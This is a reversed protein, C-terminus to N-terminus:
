LCDDYVRYRKILHAGGKELSGRSLRNSEAIWSFEVEQADKMRLAARCLETALVVGIGMRHYEPLVNAAILRYKQIKHKRFMLRAFGFPYLRGNIKKIRESYDPLAIAVGVIRGEIEVAIALKPVLLWRLGKAMHAVEAESLLVMGWHQALSKNLVQLYEILDEHLRSRDLSRVRINYRQIIQDTLPGLKPILMSRDGQYALLDQTKQFGCGAILEDYYPPNYPMMVSPPLEFGEVLVGASYYLGPNVPGRLPQDLGRRSAWQRAADLLAGAARPDDDCEFFGFFGRREHHYDTHGQNDIAAIRGCVEDGRMALYTQIANREYFPHPRYNLLAAEEGRLPPVWLPQDRYLRWPFNLFRKRDAKSQVARVTLQASQAQKLM